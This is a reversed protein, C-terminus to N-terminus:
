AGLEAFQERCQRWWNGLFQLEPETLRDLSVWVAETGIGCYASAAYYIATHLVSHHVEECKGLAVLAIDVLAYGAYAGAPHKEERIDAPLSLGLREAVENLEEDTAKGTQWRDFCELLTPSLDDVHRTRCWQRWVQVSAEAALRVCQAQKVLPLDLVAEFCRYVGQSTM